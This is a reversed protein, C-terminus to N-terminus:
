LLQFRALLWAAFAIPIVAIVVLVGVISFVFIWDGKTAKSAPHAHRELLALNRVNAKWGFDFLDGVVPIFGILFDIIANILMRIQVVRPIRMRVGHLLLLAAFLPTTLDGLGPILGLIPDLGFTLNTGPVRFASDLLVSWKRLAALTRLNSEHM